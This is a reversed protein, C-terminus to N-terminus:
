QGSEVILAYNSRVLASHGSPAIRTNSFKIDVLHAKSDVFGRAGALIAKRDNWHIDPSGEVSAAAPPIYRRLLATDNAFWAHWVTDRAALIQRTVDASQAQLPRAIPQAAAVCAAVLILRTTM